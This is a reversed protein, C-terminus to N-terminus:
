HLVVKTTRDGVKVIYLGPNLEISRSHGFYVQSGQVNYVRAAEDTGSIAISNGGTITIASDDNIIDDIGTNDDGGNDGARFYIRGNEERINSLPLGPDYGSWALFSPRTTANFETINRTGPFPDTSAAYRNSLLKTVAEVVDVHQHMRNNNVTNNHWYSENYDIHWILMGHGALYSDWGEKQRNELVFFENEKDTAIIYSQGSAELPDLIYDGATTLELPTMWGLSMREFTSYTPPTRSDNLYCGVDLVSWSDPTIATSYDTTYLDPLGLVHSFEHCFTGLGDPYGPRDFEPSCAYHNLIKGNYTYSKDTVAYEIDWSHPWVTDKYKNSDYSQGMGAYFIYINDIYGDDDTDYVSLDVGQESLINCADIAMEHAYPDQSTTTDGGYYAQRRPLDIPGYVDFTPTFVGNSATKFYDRVSGTAGYDSFNDSSLLNTFYTKPEDITFKVDYYNVLVVLCRPSGIAPFAGDKMNAPVRSPANARSPSAESAKAARNIISESDLDALFTNTALSRQDPDLARVGSSVLKGTADNTAFYFNDGEKVLPYGDESLTYHFFEDGVVRYTVTSGDSFVTKHLAPRAPAGM